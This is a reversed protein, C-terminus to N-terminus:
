LRYIRGSAVYKGLHSAGLYIHKGINSISAVSRGVLICIIYQITLTCCTFRESHSPRFVEMITGNKNSDIESIHSEWMISLKGITVCDGYQIYLIHASTRAFYINYQVALTCCLFRETHSPSLMGIHGWQKLELDIGSIGCRRTISLRRHNCM